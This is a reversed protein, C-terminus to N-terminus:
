KVRVWIQTRYFPGIYGRVQLKAGGELPKMRLRYTKGNEPDLIDGQEWVVEDAAKKAGRIIELGLKPKGKRDDTCLECNPQEPQVLLKVVQGTLAGQAGEAILIEAKAKGTEDDINRWLGVPTMQALAPWVLMSLVLTLLTKAITKTTKM